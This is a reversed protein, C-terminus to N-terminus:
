KIVAMNKRDFTASVAALFIIGRVLQQVYTDVGLMTMGNSLIAMTISGVVVCRYKSSAGGTLPMGGLLLANLANMELNLGTGTSATGTRVLSFFALFGALGGCILFGSLKVAKVPVGSQEAAELRSGLAKSYKGLRTLEFVVYAVVCVAVIVILKLPFSDWTLMSLPAAISGDGALVLLVSGKLVFQMALTAIFSNIGWWAHIYGNAMGIVLGAAVAVPIALLPHIAAARAALCCSIGMAAGMSFDLNGQAICFIMGSAGIIIMFGENVIARLNRAALLRGGSITEFFVLVLLLGAYPIISKANDRWWEAPTAGRPKAMATLDM